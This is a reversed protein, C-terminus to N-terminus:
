DVPSPGRNRRRMVMSYKELWPYVPWRRRGYGRQGVIAFGVGQNQACFALTDGGRMLAGPAQVSREVAASRRAMRRLLAAYSASEGAVGATM